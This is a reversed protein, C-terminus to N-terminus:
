PTLTLWEYEVGARSFVFEADQTCFRPHSRDVVSLVRKIGAAAVLKACEGCPSLPYTYLTCGVVSGGANLIANAEAHIVLKYKIERDNLWHELDDVCPPFGNFGQSVVHKGRCIVAGVKTSPDKSWTSVEQALKLFREDWKNM